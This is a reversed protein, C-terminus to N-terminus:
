NMFREVAENLADIAEKDGTEVAHIICHDIHDKLIVKGASNIASKIAALQILVESCDRGDEVMNKVSEMHGIIRSLRNLVAKTQTHTHTHTHLHDHHSFDVDRCVSDNFKSENEM